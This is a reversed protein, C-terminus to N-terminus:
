RLHPGGDAVRWLSGAETVVVDMPIDFRHPRITSIQQCSYGVGILLPAHTFAAITHDFFGGGYGLRYCGGDFGVLPAIVVDPCMVRGAAPVPINWIGRELKEGIKWSRFTLPQRKAVVCPLLCVGSRSTVSQIWGRLDPEGPFPWFVAIARGAVSGLIEDLAASITSAFELKQRNGIAVRSGILRSREATRWGRLEQSLSDEGQIGMYSPDVQHMSCAPSAYGVPEDTQPEEEAM